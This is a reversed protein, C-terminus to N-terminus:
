VLYYTLLKYKYKFFHCVSQYIKYSELYLLYMGDLPIEFELYVAKMKILNRLCFSSITFHQSQVLDM